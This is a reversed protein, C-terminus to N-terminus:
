EIGMFKEVCSRCFCGGTEIKKSDKLRKLIEKPIKFDMCWCTSSDEGNEHACNNQKECIPCIKRDM